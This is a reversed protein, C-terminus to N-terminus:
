EDSSDEKLANSSEDVSDDSSDDTPVCDSSSVSSLVDVM